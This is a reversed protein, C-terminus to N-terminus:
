AEKENVLIFCMGFLLTHQNSRSFEQKMALLLIWQLLEAMIRWFANRKHAYYQNAELSACGPMSGLILIESNKDAIPTFSYIKTM